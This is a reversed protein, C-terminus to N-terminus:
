DKNTQSFPPRGLWWELLLGGYYLILIMFVTVAVIPLGYVVWVFWAPIEVYTIFTGDRALAESIM